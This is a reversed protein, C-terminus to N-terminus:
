SAGPYAPNTNLDPSQVPILHKVKILSLKGMHLMPNKVGTRQARHLHLSATFKLINYLSRSRWRRTGLCRNMIMLIM